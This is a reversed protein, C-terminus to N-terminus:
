GRRVCGCAALPTGVLLWFIASKGLHMPDNIAQDGILDWRYELHRIYENHPENMERAFARDLPWDYRGIHLNFEGTTPNRIRALVLSCGGDATGGALTEFGLAIGMKFHSNAHTKDDPNLNRRYMSKLNEPTIQTSSFKFLTNCTEVLGLDLDEKLNLYETLCIAVLSLFLALSICGSALSVLDAICSFIPVSFSM